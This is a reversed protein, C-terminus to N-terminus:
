KTCPVHMIAQDTAHATINSAGLACAPIAAAAVSTRTSSRGANRVNSGATSNASHAGDGRTFPASRRGRLPICCTRSKNEDAAISTLCPRCPRRMSPENGEDAQEILPPSKKFATFAPATIARTQSLRNRINAGLVHGATRKSAIAVVNGTDATFDQLAVSPTALRAPAHFIKLNMVNLRPASESIVNGLIQDCEARGAVLFGM